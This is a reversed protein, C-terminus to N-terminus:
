ESNIEGIIRWAEDLQGLQDLAEIEDPHLTVTRCTKHHCPWCQAVLEGSDVRPAMVVAVLVQTGCACERLNSPGTAGDTLSPCVYYHTM